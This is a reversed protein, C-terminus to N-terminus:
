RGAHADRYQAAAGFFGVMFFLITAIINNTGPLIALIGVVAAAAGLFATSVIIVVEEWRVGLVGIVAGAGLGILLNSAGTFVVYLFSGVGYAAVFGITFAIMVKIRNAFIAGLAGMVVFGIVISLTVVYSGNVLPLRATFLTMWGPVRLLWTLVVGIIGGIIFGWLQLVDVFLRYGLFALLGGLFIEVIAIPDM